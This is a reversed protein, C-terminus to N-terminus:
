VSLSLMKHARFFHGWFQLFYFSFQQQRIFKELLYHAEKHKNRTVDIYVDIYILLNNGTNLFTSWFLLQFRDCIEKPHSM